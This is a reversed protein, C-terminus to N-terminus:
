VLEIGMKISNNETGIRYGNKPRKPIPAKPETGTQYPVLINGIKVKLYPLCKQYWYGSKIIKPVLVPVVSM